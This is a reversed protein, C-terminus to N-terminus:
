QRNALTFLVFGVGGRRVLRDLQWLTKHFCGHNPEYKPTVQQIFAVIMVALSPPPLFPDNRDWFDSENGLRSFVVMELSVSLKFHLCDKHQHKSIQKSIRQLNTLKWFNREELTDYQTSKSIKKKLKMSIAIKKKTTNWKIWLHNLHHDIHWM